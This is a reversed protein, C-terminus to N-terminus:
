VRRIITVLGQKTAMRRALKKAQFRTLMPRESFFHGPIGGMEMKFGVEYRNNMLIRSSRKGATYASDANKTGVPHKTAM